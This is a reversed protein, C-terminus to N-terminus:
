IASYQEVFAKAEAIEPRTSNSNKTLELLQNYYLAAKDTNGAQKAASAAGYIGNFRNPRRELNLEYAVLAEAPKNVMLLMDGLLEDAPLIEGPTVPHKSTQSEMEAATTM